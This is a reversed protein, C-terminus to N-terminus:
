GAARRLFRGGVCCIGFVVLNVAVVGAGVPTSYAYSLMMGVVFCITAIVAAGLVAGRFSRFLRMASLPPFLIIASVLLAGMLRMGLVITVGTLLALLLNYAGVRLGSARAFGEDFTVSFLKLYFVGYLVLVVAALALSVPVDSKQIALLSGFMYSHVDLNVGTTMSVVIIGIALAGTSVVAIAADGKIKATESLRLLWWAAVLVVPVSVAMPAWGLALGLAVAGFGVHSLGDGIMSVRKLVLSVGLLAACLSVALGVVFARSLFAHALLAEFFETM